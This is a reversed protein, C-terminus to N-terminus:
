PTVEGAHDSVALHQDRPRAGHRGATGPMRMSAHYLLHTGRRQKANYLAIDAHHLLANLDGHEGDFVAIGASAQAGIITPGADTHVTVPEALTNLIDAVSGTVDTHTAPLLLLFEDGNLRAAIGHHSTAAAHLRKAVALLLEDGVAHGHSDNVHKFRDLDVLAVVTPLGRQQRWLFVNGAFHRNPLGTLRDRSAIRATVDLLSRLRRLQPEAALRGLIFGIAATAGLKTLTSM